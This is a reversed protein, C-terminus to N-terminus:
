YYYFFIYDFEWTGGIKPYNQALEKPALNASIFIIDNLHSIAITKEKNNFNQVKKQRLGLILPKTFKNRKIPIFFNGKVM